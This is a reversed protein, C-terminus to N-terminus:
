MFFANLKKSPPFLKSSKGDVVLKLKYFKLDVFKFTPVFSFVKAAIKEKAKIQNQICNRTSKSSAQMDNLSQLKM